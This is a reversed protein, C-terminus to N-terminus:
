RAALAKKLFAIQGAHYLDHHVVGHLMQYWTGGDRTRVEDLRREPFGAITERLRRNGRALAELLARWREPSTEGMPPWDEDGSLQVEAGELRRRVADEWGAIHLVIEWISHASALPRAAAATPGVGELVERLAPGHWAGGEQARRLLDVIRDIESM